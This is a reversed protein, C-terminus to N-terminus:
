FLMYHLLIAGFTLRALFRAPLAAGALSQVTSFVEGHINPIYVTHKDLEFVGYLTVHFLHGTM